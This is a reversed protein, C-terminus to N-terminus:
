KSYHALGLLVDMADIEDNNVKTEETTAKVKRQDRIPKSMRMALPFLKDAVDKEIPFDWGNFARTEGEEASLIGAKDLIELMPISVNGVDLSTRTEENTITVVATYGKPKTLRYM